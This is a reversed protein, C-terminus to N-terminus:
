LEAKPPWLGKEQFIGIVQADATTSWALVFLAALGLLSM